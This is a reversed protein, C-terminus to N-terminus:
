FSRKPYKMRMFAKTLDVTVMEEQARMSKKLAMPNLVCHMLEHAVTSERDLIDDDRLLAALYFEICGYRYEWSPAVRARLEEDNPDPSTVFSTKITWHELGLRPKWYAILRTIEDILKSEAPTYPTGKAKGM